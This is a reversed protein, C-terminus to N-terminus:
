FKIYIINRTCHLASSRVIIGTRDTCEQINQGICYTRGVMYAEYINLGAKLSHCLVFALVMSTLLAPSPNYLRTTGEYGLPPTTRRTTSNMYLIFIKVQYSNTFCDLSSFFIDLYVKGRGAKSCKNRMVMCQPFFIFMDPPKYKQIPTM